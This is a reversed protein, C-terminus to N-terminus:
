KRLHPMNEKFQKSKQWLEDSIQLRQAELWERGLTWDSLSSHRFKHQGACELCYTHDFHTPQLPLPQGSFEQRYAEILEFESMVMSRCEPDYGVIRQSEFMGLHLDIFDQNHISQVRQRLGSLLQRDLQRFPVASTCVPFGEYTLHTLNGQLLNKVYLRNGVTISDNELALFRDVKVPVRDFVLNQGFIIDADVVLWSDGPLYQDLCLKVLQQRWWGVPCRDIAPVEGVTHWVIGRSIHQKELYQKIDSEFDPWPTSVPHGNNHQTDLIIHIPRPPLYQQISKICLATQFCYGPWTTIAYCDFNM